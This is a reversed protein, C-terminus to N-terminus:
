ISYRLSLYRFFLGELLDEQPACFISDGFLQYANTDDAVVLQDPRLLQDQNDWNDDEADNLQKERQRAVRTRKLGILM